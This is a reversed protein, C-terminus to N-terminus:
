DHKQIIYLPNIFYYEGEKNDVLEGYCENETLSDWHDPIYISCIIIFTILLIMFLIFMICFPYNFNKTPVNWIESSDFRM